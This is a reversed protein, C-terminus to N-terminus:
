SGATGTFPDSRQAQSRRGSPCLGPSSARRTSTSSSFRIPRSGRGQVGRGWLVLALLILLSTRARM